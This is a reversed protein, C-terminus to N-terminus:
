PLPLPSPGDPWGGDSRAKASERIPELAIPHTRRSNCPKGQYSGVCSGPLQWAKNCRSDPMHPAGSTPSHGSWCIGACRGSNQPKTESPLLCVPPLWDELPTSRLPSNRAQASEMAISALSGLVFQCWQLPAAYHTYYLLQLARTPPLGSTQRPIGALSQRPRPGGLLGVYAAEGHRTARKRWRYPVHARAGISPNHLTNGNWSCRLKRPSEM